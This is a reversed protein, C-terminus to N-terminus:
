AGKRRRRKSGLEKRAAEGAAVAARERERHRRAAIESLEAFRVARRHKKEGYSLAEDWSLLGGDVHRALSIATHRGDESELALLLLGALGIQSKSSYEDIETEVVWKHVDDSVNLSIQRKRAM